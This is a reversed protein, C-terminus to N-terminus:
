SLFISLDIEDYSEGSLLMGALFAKLFLLLPFIPNLSASPSTNKEGASVEHLRERWSGDEELGSKKGSSSHATCIALAALADIVGSDVVLLLLSKLGGPPPTDRLLGLM